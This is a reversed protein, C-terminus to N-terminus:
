KWSIGNANLVERCWDQYSGGDARNAYSKIKDLVTDYLKAVPAGNVTQVAGSIERFTTQYGGDAKKITGFDNAETVQKPTLNLSRLKGLTKMKPKPM